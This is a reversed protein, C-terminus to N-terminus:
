IYKLQKEYKQVFNPHNLIKHKPIFLPKKPANKDFIKNKQGKYKNTNQPFDIGDNTQFDGATKIRLMTEEFNNLLDEHRVLIYHNVKTPMTEILFKLKTHRMEFINKYRQKTFINRDKINEATSDHHISWFTDNLFHFANNNHINIRTQLNGVLPKPTLHEPLHYPNKYLSNLWDVPDRVIAIFLTDQAKPTSLDDFGFFHKWGFDWTIKANFNKTIIGELYSTGSCREGYITFNNVM